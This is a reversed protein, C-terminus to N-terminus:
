EGMGGKCSVQGGHPPSNFSTQNQLSDDLHSRSAGHVYKVKAIQCKTMSFIIRDTAQIGISLMTSIIETTVDCEDNIEEANFDVALEM